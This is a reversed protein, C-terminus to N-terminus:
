VMHLIHKESIEARHGCSMLTEILANQFIEVGKGLGLVSNSVRLEDNEKVLNQLTSLLM